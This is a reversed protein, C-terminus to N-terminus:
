KGNLQEKSPYEIRKHYLGAMVKTCVEAIKDIDKFTLNCEEFQGDALKGNILQRIFGSIQGRTVGKRSRVAAEVTDAIMIIAAEKTQPKKQHYRFDSANVSDDLQKAKM